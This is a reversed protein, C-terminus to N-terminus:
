GWIFLHEAWCDMMAKRRITRPKRSQDFTDAADEPSPIEIRETPMIDYIHQDKGVDIM